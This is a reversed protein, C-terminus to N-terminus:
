ARVRNLAYDKSRAEVVVSEIGEQHLLTALLLGAPGAGVIGVQTRMQMLMLSVPLTRLAIIHACQACFFSYEHSLDDYQLFSNGLEDGITCRKRHLPERMQDREGSPVLHDALAPLIELQDPHRRVDQVVLHHTDAARRLEDERVAAVGPNARQM